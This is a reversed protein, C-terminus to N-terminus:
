CSVPHSLKMLTTFEPPIEPNSWSVRWAYRRCSGTWTTKIPWAQWSWISPFIKVSTPYPLYPRGLHLTTPTLVLSENWSITPIHPCVEELRGEWMERGQGEMMHFGSLVVLEPQFEDLSAVFAELASMEGNSVDHSFIFRNAQPARTSAWQEGSSMFCIHSVNLGLPRPLPQSENKEKGAKYELILHFEDTEQLSEAPVLIQEDLMEHLKPGVPGCLLVQPQVLVTLLLGGISENHNVEAQLLLYLQVMLDPYTALKQGILAANGGVYLQFLSLCWM